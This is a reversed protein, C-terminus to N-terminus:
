KEIPLDVLKQNSSNASGSVILAVPFQALISSVPITKQAGQSIQLTEDTLINLFRSEELSNPLVVATDGWIDPGLPLRTAGKALGVMLRPVIIIALGNETQRAFACLHEKKEGVATLPIYDGDDFLARHRNRFELVRWILYLKSRGLQDERLLEIFFRRQPISGHCAQAKFEALIQRRREYDVPRRNDPDVLSFGWLETGQYFDPVGPATMKLLTQCLSNLRGFFAAKRQFTKFDALFANESSDPLTEEIFKSTADEYAADPQTWSTHAKAEKISKLMCAVMRQRFIAWQDATPNEPWAGILTQYFFYEDNSHPAPQGDVISKKDANLERWRNLAAQWENPIESLVNIRARVDEGRKTDHTATALLSHPWRAAKRLNHQHFSDVSNGFSGPNGGVENLSILRNFNYFTTDELGKAM